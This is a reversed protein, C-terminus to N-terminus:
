RVGVPSSKPFEWSCTSVRRFQDRKRRVDDQSNAVAHLRQELYGASHRDYERDDGIRNTGAEDITQRPWAAVVGAKQHEFVTQAPFPWFQQIEDTVVTFRKIANPGFTTSLWHM